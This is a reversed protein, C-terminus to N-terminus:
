MKAKAITIEILNRKSYKETDKKQKELSFLKFYQM